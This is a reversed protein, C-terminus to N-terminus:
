QLWHCSHVPLVPLLGFLCYQIPDPALGNGGMFPAFDAQITTKGNPYQIKSKLQPMGGEFKWLCEIKKSKKSKSLDKKTEEM